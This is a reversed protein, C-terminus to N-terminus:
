QGFDVDDEVFLATEYGSRLFGELLSIYNLVARIEDLVTTASDGKLHLLIDQDTPRKQVPITFRLETLKAASLLGQVRWTATDETLVYLAGFGLTANSPSTLGTSSKDFYLYYRVISFSILLVFTMRLYNEVHSARLILM